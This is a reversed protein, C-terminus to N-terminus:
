VAGCAVVTFVMCVAVLVCLLKKVKM